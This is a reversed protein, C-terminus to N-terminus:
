RKVGHTIGIEAHSGNPIELLFIVDYLARSGTAHSLCSLGSVAGLDRELNLPGFKSEWLFFTKILTSSFFAEYIASLFSVFLKEMISATTSFKSFIHLM